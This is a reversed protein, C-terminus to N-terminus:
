IIKLLRNIIRVFLSPKECTREMAYNLNKGNYLGNFVKRAHTKEAPFIIRKNHNTIVDIPVIKAVFHCSLKQYLSHGKQTVCIVSSTGKGDELEPALEKVGWGDALIIDANINEGKYKCNLCVPREFAGRTFCKLFRGDEYRYSLDVSGDDYKIKLGYNLWGRTKDRMAVEVVKGHVNEKLYEGWIDREISGHCAIAVSTLNEHEGLIKKVGAIQCPVGTFLVQKGGNILKRIQEICFGMDSKVYKSGRMRKVQSIENSVIHIPMLNDSYICGCVYGEKKIFYKALEYFVGGSSSKIRINDDINNCLLGEIGCIRTSLEPENLAVCVKECKHCNICVCKDVMPHLKNNFHIANVPCVNSCASCSYCNTEFDFDIM